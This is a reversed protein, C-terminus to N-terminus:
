KILEELINTYRIKLKNIHILINEKLIDNPSITYKLYKNKLIKANEFLNKLIDGYNIYKDDNFSKYLINMRINMLFIHSIIFAFFKINMNQNQNFRQAIIDFMQIGYYINPYSDLPTNNLFLSVKNKFIDINPKRILKPSLKFVEIMSSNGSCDIGYNIEFNYNKNSNEIDYFSIEETSINQFNFYDLALFVKKESNYGYIILAHELHDKQFSKFYNKVYFADIMYGIYYGKDLLSIFFNIIDINLLNNCNNNIISYDFCGFTNYYLPTYFNINKSYNNDYIVVDIYNEVIAFGYDKIQSCVIPFTRPILLSQYDQINIINNPFTIPLEIKSM